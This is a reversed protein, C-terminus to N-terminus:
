QSETDARRTAWVSGHGTPAWDARPDARNQDRPHPPTRGLGHPQCYFVGGPEAGPSPAAGLRGAAEGARKAPGLRADPWHRPVLAIALRRPAKARTTSRPGLPQGHEHAPLGRPPCPAPHGPRPTHLSTHTSASTPSPQALPPSSPCPPPSPRPAPLSTSCLASWGHPTAADPEPPPLPASRRSRWSSHRASPWCAATPGQRTPPVPQRQCTNTSM